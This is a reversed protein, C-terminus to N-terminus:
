KNNRSIRHEFYNRSFIYHTSYHINVVLRNFVIFYKNKIQRILFHTIKHLTTKLLSRFVAMHLYTKCLYVRQYWDLKYCRIPKISQLFLTVLYHIKVLVPYNIVRVM